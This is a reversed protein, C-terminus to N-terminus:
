SPSSDMNTPRFGSQLTFMMNRTTGLFEVRSSRYGNLSSIKWAASSVRHTKSLSEFGGHFDPQAKRWLNAEHIYGARDEKQLVFDKGKQKLWSEIVPKGSVNDSLEPRSIRTQIIVLRLCNTLQKPRQTM